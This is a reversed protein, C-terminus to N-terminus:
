YSKTYKAKKYSKFESYNGNDYFKVEYLEGKELDVYQIEEIEFTFTKGDSNKFKVYYTKEEEIDGDEEEKTTIVQTKECTMVETKTNKRADEVVLYCFITSLAIIFLSILIAKVNKM